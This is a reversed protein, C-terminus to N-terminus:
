SHKVCLILRLVQLPYFALQSNGYTKHVHVIPKRWVKEFPQLVREFPQLVAEFCKFTFLLFRFPKCARDCLTISFTSLSYKIKWIVRVFAVFLLILLSKPIILSNQMLPKYIIKVNKRIIYSVYNRTM